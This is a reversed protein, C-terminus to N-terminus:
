KVFYCYIRTKTNEVNDIDRNCPEGFLFIRSSIVFVATVSNHKEIHLENNIVFAFRYIVM